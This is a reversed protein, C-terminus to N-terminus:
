SEIAEVIEPLEAVLFHNKDSFLRVKAGSVHTKYWEAESVPVVQDDKSHWIEVKNACKVINQAANASFRFSRCDNGDSQQPYQGGPAALLFLKAIQFPPTKESLYKALFMGGLSGGILIVGDNLYTFHREFWLQWELYDANNRNPMAPMFVEYDPGLEAALSRKWSPTTPQNPLDWIPATKLYKLYDEQSNFGDGGHVYFVQKKM